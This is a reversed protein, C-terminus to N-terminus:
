NWTVQFVAELFPLFVTIVSHTTFNLKIARFMWNRKSWLIWFQVFGLFHSDITFNKHYNLNNRLKSQEDEQFIRTHWIWRKKYKWNSICNPFLLQFIHLNCVWKETARFIFHFLFCFTKPRRFYVQLSDLKEIFLRDIKYFDSWNLIQCNPNKLEKGIKFTGSLCSINKLYFPRHM